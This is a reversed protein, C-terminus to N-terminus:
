KYSTRNGLRTPTGANLTKMELFETKPNESHFPLAFVARYPSSSIVTRVTRIEDRQKM